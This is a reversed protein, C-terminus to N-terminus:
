PRSTLLLTQPPPPRRRPPPPPPPPPPSLRATAHPFALFFSFSSPHTPQCPGVPTQQQAGLAAPEQRMSHLADHYRFAPAVASYPSFRPRLSAQKMATKTCLCRNAWRQHAPDVVAICRLSDPRLVRDRAASSLFAEDRHRRAHALADVSARGLACAHSREGPAVREGLREGGEGQQRRPRVRGGRGSRGRVPGPRRTAAPGAVRPQKQLFFSPPQAFIIPESRATSRKTAGGSVRGMSPNKTGHLTEHQGPFLRFRSLDRRAMAYFLRRLDHVGPM